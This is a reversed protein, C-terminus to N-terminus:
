AGLFAQVNGGSEVRVSRRLWEVLATDVGAAEVVIRPAAAQGSYRSSVAGNLMRDSASEIRAVQRELTGFLSALLDDVADASLGATLAMNRFANVMRTLAAAAGDYDGAATLANVYNRINSAQDQLARMFDNGAQTGAQFGFPMDAFMRRLSRWTDQIDLIIRSAGLQPENLDFINVIGDGFIAAGPDLSRLWDVIGQWGSRMATELSGMFGEGAAAAGAAFGSPISSSVTGAIDAAFGAVM